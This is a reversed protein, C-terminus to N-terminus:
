KNKLYMFAIIAAGVILVDNKKYCSGFIPMEGTNCVVAGGTSCTNDCNDSAFAGGTVATCAKNVCGYRTANTDAGYIIIDWSDQCVFTQPIDLFNFASVSVRLNLNGNSPMRATLVKRTSEGVALNFVGTSDTCTGTTLDYLDVSVVDYIILSKDVIDVGITVPDGWFATSKYSSTGKNIEVYAKSGTTCNNICDVM